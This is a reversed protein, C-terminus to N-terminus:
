CHLNIDVGVCSSMYRDIDVGVPPVTLILVWGLSPIVTLILELRHPPFNYLVTVIFVLM